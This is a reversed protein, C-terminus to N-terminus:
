QLCSDCDLPISKIQDARQKNLNAACVQFFIQEQTLPDRYAQASVSQLKCESNKFANWKNQTDILLTKDRTLKVIIKNLTEELEKESESHFHEVCVNSTYTDGFNLCESPNKASFTIGSDERMYETANAAIPILLIALAKLIKM